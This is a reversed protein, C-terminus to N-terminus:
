LPLATRERTNCRPWIAYRIRAPRRSTEFRVVIHFRSCHTTYQPQCGQKQRQTTTVNRGRTGAVFVRGRPIGRSPVRWRGIIRVGASIGAVAIIASRRCEKFAAHRDWQNQEATLPSVVVVATVPVAGRLPNGAVQLRVPRACVHRRTRFGAMLLPRTLRARRGIPRRLPWPRSCRRSRRLGSRSVLRTMFAV